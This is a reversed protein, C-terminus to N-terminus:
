WQLMDAQNHVFALGIGIGNGIGMGYSDRMTVRCDLSSSECVDGLARDRPLPIPIPLPRSRVGPYVREMGMRTRGEEGVGMQTEVEWKPRSDVTSALTGIEEGVGTSGEIRRSPALDIEHHVAAIEEVAAPNRRSQHLQREFRKQLDSIQPHRDDQNRAVVLTRGHRKGV